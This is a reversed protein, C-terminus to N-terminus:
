RAAEDPLGEEIEGPTRAPIHLLRDPVPRGLAEYLAKEALKADRLRARVKSPPHWRTDASWREMAIVIQRVYRRYRVLAVAAGTPKLATLPLAALVKLEEAIVDANGKFLTSQSQADDSRKLVYDVVEDITTLVALVADATAEAADRADDERKRNQLAWASFIALSTVVIQCVAISIRFADDGWRDAVFIMALTLLLAGVYLGTFIVPGRAEDM